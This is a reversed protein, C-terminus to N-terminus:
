RGDMGWVNDWSGAEAKPGEITLRAAPGPLGGPQGPVAKRGKTRIGLIRLVFRALEGYLMGSRDFLQLLASMFAHFAFTNQDILFAIRGFFDVVGHMVRMLSMWFSPPSAPAGFPNNPNNPDQNGYPGNMGMGYGGFQGGYGGGYMGGGNMGGGYMGGGYMGGGYMGSGGYGRYMNNGQMGGGYSGGYGGYSGYMGSGYTGSGYGGVNSAYNSTWPRSPVTRGVPNRNVAANGETGSVFEGPRATGSAEVVESTSGASPPNFPTPGSSAGAQEWPKKPLSSLQVRLPWILCADDLEMRLPSSGFDDRAREDEATGESQWHGAESMGPISAQPGLDRHASSASSPLQRCRIGHPQRHATTLLSPCAAEYVPSPRRRPRPRRRRRVSVVRGGGLRPATPSVNAAHCTRTM